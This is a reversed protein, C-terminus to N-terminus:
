VRLYEVCARAPAVAGCDLHKRNPGYMSQALASSKPAGPWTHSSAQSSSAVTLKYSKVDLMCRVTCKSMDCTVVTGDELM